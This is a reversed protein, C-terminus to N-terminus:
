ADMLAPKSKRRYAMFGVGAFGVVMIAWTSPEPVASPLATFQPTFNAVGVNAFQDVAIFISDSNKNPPSNIYINGACDFECGAVTDTPSSGYSFGFNFVSFSKGDASRTGYL